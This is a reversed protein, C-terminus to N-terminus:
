KVTEKPNRERGADGFGVVSFLFPLAM